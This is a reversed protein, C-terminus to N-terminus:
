LKIREVMKLHSQKTNVHNRPLYQNQSKMPVTLLSQYQNNEKNKRTKMWSAPNQSFYDVSHWM